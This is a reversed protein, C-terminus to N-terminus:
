MRGNNTNSCVFFFAYKFLLIIKLLVLIKESVCEDNKGGTYCCASQFYGASFGGLYAVLCSPRQTLPLVTMELVNQRPALHSAWLKNWVYMCLYIACFRGIYQCRRLVFLNRQQSFFFHHHCMREKKKVIFFVIFHEM